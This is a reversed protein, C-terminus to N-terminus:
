PSLLQKLVVVQAKYAKHDTDKLRQLDREVQQLRRKASQTKLDEIRRHLALLDAFPQPPSLEGREEILLAVADLLKGIQRGYSEESVIALETEPASSNQENVTVNGFTWGPLIPQSLSSPATSWPWWFPFSSGFPIAAAGV